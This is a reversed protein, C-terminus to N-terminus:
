KKDENNVYTTGTVPDQTAPVPEVANGKWAAASQQYTQGALEFSRQYVGTITGDASVTEGFILFAFALIMAVPALQPVAIPWKLGRLWEGTEKLWSAKAQKAEATGITLQLIKDHLGAPIALEDMKYTYCAAISRVVM